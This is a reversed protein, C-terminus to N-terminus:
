LLEIYVAWNLSWTTLPVKWLWSELIQLYAFAFISGSGLHFGGYTPLYTPLYVTIQYLVIGLIIKPQIFPKVNSWPGWKFKPVYTCNQRRSPPRYLLSELISLGIKATSEVNLFLLNQKNEIKQKVIWMVFKVSM